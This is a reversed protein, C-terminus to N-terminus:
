DSDHSGGLYARASKNGRKAAIKLLERYNKGPNSDDNVAKFLQRRREDQRRKEKARAAKPDRKPIGARAICKEITYFSTKYKLIIQFMPVDDQYDVIMAEIQGPEDLLSSEKGFRKRNFEKISRTKVKQKRLWFLITTRNLAYEIGLQEPTVGSRYKRIMEDLKEQDAFAGHRM